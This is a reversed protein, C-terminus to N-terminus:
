LRLKAEMKEEMRVTKRCHNEHRECAAKSEWYGLAPLSFLCVTEWFSRSGEGNKEGEGVNAEWSRWRMVAPLDGEAPTQKHLKLSATM